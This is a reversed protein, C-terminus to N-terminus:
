LKFGESSKRLEEALDAVNNSLGDLEEIDEKQKKVEDFLGELARAIDDVTQAANTTASAIEQSAASQEEATSALNEVMGSIQEFQELVDDLNKSTSVAADSIKVISDITDLTSKETEETLSKITNLIDAIKETSKKSEDALGRIEDAIVAFGKGAEGARAAEIAANLALLATQESISTIANVIEGINKTNDSLKLVIDKTNDALSSTNSINDLISKVLGISEKSTEVSQNAKETLDQSINAVNQASSAVEETSANVEEIAASTNQADQTIQDMRSYVSENIELTAAAKEKLSVATGDLEKVGEVVTKMAENLNMIAKNLAEGMQATEDKGHVEFKVSLDGEGFKESIKAVSKIPKSISSGLIFTIFIAIIIIIISTIIIFTIIKNSYRDLQTKPIALGFYWNPSHPVKSYAFFVMGDGDPAMAMAYGEDKGSSLDNAFKKFGKDNSNNVNFKGEVDKDPHIVFLGNQQLLYGHGKEGIKVEEVAKRIDSLNLTCGLVGKLSGGSGKIAIAVVFTKKGTAKSVVINSVAYDKGNQVIENFYPRDNIKAAGEKELTIYKTNGQADSLFGLTLEGNSYKLMDKFSSKFKDWELDTVSKRQSFLLLQQVTSMLVDGIDQSYGKAIQLNRTINLEMVINRSEWVSFTGVVAVSGIVLILVWFLIKGKISKM